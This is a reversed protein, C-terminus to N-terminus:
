KGAPPKFRAYNWEAYNRQASEIPEKWPSLCGQYVSSGKRFHQAQDLTEIFPMDMAYLKDGRPRPGSKSVHGWTPHGIIEEALAVAGCLKNLDVGALEGEIIGMEQTMFFFDETPVMTASRGNGCYPCGALGGLSGDLSVTDEPGLTTLIIYYSILAVGRTNHLHFSWNHIEPWREKIALIFRQVQDPMNWGMPDAMSIGTVTIGAENWMNWQKQYLDMVDDQVIDGVWNSGFPSNISITAEKVGQEKATKIIGPWKAILEAQYLNANRKTFVDCACGTTRNPTQNPPTLPPCCKLYRPLGQSGMFLATYIVGQKPHFKQVLEETKAMQPTWKPSVFSGIEIRKLGTESVADLLRVKEDIPINASEIQMGERLCLEVWRVKPWKGM